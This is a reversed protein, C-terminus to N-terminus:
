RCLDWFSSSLFYVQRSLHLNYLCHICFVSLVSTKFPPCVKKSAWLVAIKRYLMKWEQCFLESLVPTNKTKTKKTIKHKSWITGTNCPAWIHLRQGDFTDECKVVFFHTKQCAKGQDSWFVFQVMKFKVKWLNTKESRCLTDM